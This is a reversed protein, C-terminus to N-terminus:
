FLCLILVRYEEEDTVIKCLTIQNLNHALVLLVVFTPLCALYM